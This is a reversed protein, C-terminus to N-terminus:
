REERLRAMASRLHDLWIELIEPYETTGKLIPECVYGSGVLISKWSEPGDGAMDKRAHEGAVSMFPMLFVKGAGLRGLKPLLDALSPYGQVSALFVRADLEQLVGNLAAYITDAAHRASGHGMLVVADEPRREGPIHKIMARASRELDQHSALLPATVAVRRLGGRMLEFLRANHALEHFEIGPITHLSLLAVHTFGEDRLRVLAMEPSDVTKGARALHNRIIRSTYAWRTPTEPAVRHVEAEIHDFVRQTGEASSGFAVLLVAERGM